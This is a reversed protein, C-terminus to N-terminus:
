QGRNGPNNTNKRKSTIEKLKGKIIQIFNENCGGRQEM